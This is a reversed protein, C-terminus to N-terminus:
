FSKTIQVSYNRPAAFRAISESNSRAIYLEDDSNSVDQDGVFGSSRGIAPAEYARMLSAHFAVEADVPSDEPAYRLQAYGHFARYAHERRATGLVGTGTMPDFTVSTYRENQDPLGSYSAGVDLRLGEGLGHSMRAYGQHFLDTGLELGGEATDHDPAFSRYSIVGHFADSGYLASGPGRIMEIRSLLPLELTHVFLATGYSPMNMGGTENADTIPTMCVFAIRRQSTNM